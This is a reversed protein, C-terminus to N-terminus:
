WDRDETDNHCKCNSDNGLPYVDSWWQGFCSEYMIQHAGCKKCVRHFPNEWTYMLTRKLVKYILYFVFAIFLIIPIYRM